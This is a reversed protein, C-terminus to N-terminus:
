CTVLAEEPNNAFYDAMSKAEGLCYAEGYYGHSSELEERHTEGCLPCETERIIRFGYVEGRLYQDYTEVEGKLYGELRKLDKKTVHKIPVLGPNVQGKKLPMPRSTEEKFRELMCYIWGIQGSDWQCSFPSTSITQGGHQYLYLPLMACKQSSMMRKKWEIPSCKPQEDGLSNHWCVMTCLNDYDKRPHLPDEDREIEIILGKHEHRTTMRERGKM